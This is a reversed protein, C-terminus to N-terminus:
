AEQLPRLLLFWPRWWPQPSPASRTMLQAQQKDFRKFCVRRKFPTQFVCRQVLCAKSMSSIYTVQQHLEHFLPGCLLQEVRQQASLGKKSRVLLYVSQVQLQLPVCSWQQLGSLCTTETRSQCQLVKIDLLLRRM